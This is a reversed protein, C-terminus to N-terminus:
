EVHRFSFDYGNGLYKREIPIKLLLFERKLCEFGPNSAEKKSPGVNWGTLLDWFNQRNFIYQIVHVLFLNSFDLRGLCLNYCLMPAFSFYSNPHMPSVLLFRAQAVGGEFTVCSLASGSTLLSKGVTPFFGLLYRAVRATCPMPSIWKGGAVSVTSICSRQSQSFPSSQSLLM